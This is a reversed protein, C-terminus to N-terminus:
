KKGCAATKFLRNLALQAQRNGVTDGFTLSNVLVVMQKTGDKSNFALTLYAAIAGDHGWLPGCPGPTQYLGLGYHERTTEMERLLEPKLLRGGLLAAYFKAIDDATSTIGGAAWAYSPSVGTVDQLKNKGTVLYGHAHAGNISPSAPFSTSHLGLPAFIRRRLEAALPHGTAAEVILGLLIYNTNSYSFRAGPSFLPKHSASIAVLRRPTWAYGFDGALYPRLVRQDNLYDFLGSRHSLLDRINIDEGHPVLGPLWHEVPDDLSLKGEGVLQLVVTAVFSKTVSGIRFRDRVSMATRTARDSYGGALRLTRDDRHILVVVGPVGAAVLQNMEARLKSGLSGSSPSAAVAAAVFQSSAVVAAAVLGGVLV